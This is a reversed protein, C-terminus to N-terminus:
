CVLGNEAPNLGITVPDNSRIAFDVQITSLWNTLIIFRVHRLDLKGDLLLFRLTVPCLHIRSVNWPTSSAVQFTQQVILNLLNLPTDHFPPSPRYYLKLFYEPNGYPDGNTMSLRLSADRPGVRYVRRQPEPHCSLLREFDTKM